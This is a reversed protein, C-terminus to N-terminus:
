KINKAPAKLKLNKDEKDPGYFDPPFGNLQRWIEYWVPVNNLLAIGRAGSGPRLARPWEPADNEQPSVLIRYRGNTSIDNDIAAVTGQFTGFSQGPWGSFVFAPWGDFIFRVEQGPNVLPLDMPKIYLEVALEYNAPMITLIPEGEKVIEGLGAKITQTIYGDQPAIIHYMRSRQAYNASEIRLKTAGGEAEHLSSLTAFRDSRAKAVKQQYENEATSLALRTNTLENQSEALKNRATIVKAATEQVKLRKEELETLSKIGADYLEQTRQLRQQAIDADVLSQAVTASDAIIKFGNQRVKIQLQERKNKWERHLATIQEELAGAKASYAQIAGEKAVVQEQTRGVLDPDFYDTKVESIHVITDGEKVLQGEQVYWSDIMGGIASTIVQPRQHPRLTTVKGDAQINQTWPLLMVIFIAILMGALWRQFMKHSGSLSTQRFSRFSETAVKPNISNKSINLM